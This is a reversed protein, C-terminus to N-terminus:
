EAEMEMQLLISDEDGACYLVIDFADDDLIIDDKVIDARGLVEDYNEEEMAILVSEEDGACYLTIEFADDDLIIGDDNVDGLMYEPEDPEESGGQDEKVPKTPKTLTTPVTFDDALIIYKGDADQTGGVRVYYSESNAAWAADLTNWATEIAAFAEDGKDSAEYTALAANYTDLLTQNAADPSLDAVKVAAIENNTGQDIQKIMGETVTTADENLVLLTLQTTDSEPLGTLAVTGVSNASDYSYEATLAASASVSMAAVAMTTIATTTLLKFLKM